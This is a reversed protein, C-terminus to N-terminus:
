AILRDAGVLRYTDSEYNEGSRPGRTMVIVITRELAKWAHSQMPPSLMLEGASLVGEEVHGAESTVIALSGTVVYAWQHTLRHYHNGRVAGKETVVVTVSDLPEVLLDKIFGRADAHSVEVTTKHM